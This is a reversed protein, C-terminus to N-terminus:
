AKPRLMPFLMVDRISDVGCLLMVLREIGIGLGGAPPMGYELATIFDEDYPHAEEDGLAKERVQAVFRQKQDIPDNL